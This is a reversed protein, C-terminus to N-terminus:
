FMIAASIMWTHPKGKLDSMNGNMTSYNETLGWNYILGVQIRNIIEVGAAFNLGAGFSKAKIQGDVDHIYDKINKEKDGGVLFNVYPGASFYPAVVPVNIRMKLNVPVELYNSVFSDDNAHFGKQSYLIAFDVGSGMKSLFEFLPGVHFGTINDPHVVDKNFSVTSINVGGKIGFRFQAHAASTALMLMVVSIVLFLKRKKMM